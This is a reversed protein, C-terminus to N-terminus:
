VQMNPLAFRMLRKMARRNKPSYPYVVPRYKDDFTGIEEGPTRLDARGAFPRNEVGLRSFSKETAANAHALIAPKPGSESSQSLGYKVLALYALHALPVGRVRKAREGIRFNSEVSFSSTLDVDGESYFSKIEEATLQGSAVIGDVMATKLGADLDDESGSVFKPSTIRTGRILRGEGASKRTDVVALFASQTEYDAMINPMEPFIGAEITRMTNAHVSDPRIWVATVGRGYRERAASVIERESASVEAESLDYRVEPMAKEPTPALDIAQLDDNARAKKVEHVVKSVGAVAVVAASLTPWFGFREASEALGYIIPTAVVTVESANKVGFVMDERVTRSPDQIHKVFTAVASGAIAGTTVDATFGTRVNNDGFGLKSAKGAVWDTIKQGGESGLLVATATAASAEIALTAAGVAATTAFPSTSAADAIGLIGTRMAENLPTVEAIVVAAGAGYVVKRLLGPNETVVEARIPDEPVVDHLDSSMEPYQSITM